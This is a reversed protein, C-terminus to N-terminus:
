ASSPKGAIRATSSSRERTPARSATSTASLSRKVWFEKEMRTRARGRRLFRMQVESAKLMADAAEIGKPITKYEVLGIAKSM